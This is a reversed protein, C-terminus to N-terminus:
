YKENNQASNQPKMQDYFYDSMKNGVGTQIYQNAYNSLGPIKLKSIYKNTLLDAIPREPSDSLNNSYGIMSALMGARGTNLISQVNGALELLNTLHPYKEHNQEMQTRIDNRVTYYGNQAENFINQNNLGAKVAGVGGGVAGALEDFNGLARGNTYAMAGAQTADAFKQAAAGINHAFNNAMPLTMGIPNSLGAYTTGYMMPSPAPTPAPRSNINSNNLQATLQQMM